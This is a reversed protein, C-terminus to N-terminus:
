DQALGIWYMDGDWKNSIWKLIIRADAGLDEMNDRERLDGGGWWWWWWVRTRVESLFM